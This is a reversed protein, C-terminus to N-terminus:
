QNTARLLFTICLLGKSAAPAIDTLQDRMRREVYCVSSCTSKQKDLHAAATERPSIACPREAYNSFEDVSNDVGGQACRELKM